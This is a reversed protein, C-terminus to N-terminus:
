DRIGDERDGGGQQAAQMAQAQAAAQQEAQAAQAVAEDSRVISPDVGLAEAYEDVARTADIKHRAEPWISAISGTFQALRDIAGTSALRQAQALVSVYEVSLERNQLEPPPVPLM